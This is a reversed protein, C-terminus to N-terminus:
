PDYDEVSNEIIEVIKPVIADELLQLYLPGTLNGEIFFPGIIHNGLIGCWVNLKEPFQTHTERGVHPNEQAWYRCNHKHVSGNLFFNQNTM